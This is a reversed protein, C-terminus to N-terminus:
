NPHTLHELHQDVRERDPIPNQAGAGLTTLAGACNAAALADELKEGDAIRAAFCGAFADGAGVTDIPLVPLTPISIVEDGRNFVLTDDGGRTIILNEVRLEHIRQKVLSLEENWPQFGIVEAAEHENVLLYDTRIEQWPFSKEVPSPNIIVPVEKHNAIRAGEVVASVPVEFQGLLAGASSIQKTKAKIHERTLTGNAGSSIVIMNEGSRDVTIFAAGTSGKVSEIHAPDIGEKVLEKLYKKGHEDNGVSGILIVECGQRTAAIAQNAGKGGRFIDLSDSCVTEGPAPLSEVRTFYDINLSGIVAVSNAETM